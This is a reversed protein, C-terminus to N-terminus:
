EGNNWGKRYRTLFEKKSEVNCEIDDFKIGYEKEYKKMFDEARLKEGFVENMQTVFCFDEFYKKIEEPTKNDRVLVTIFICAAWQAASDITNSFIDYEHEAYQRQAEELMAKRCQPCSKTKM